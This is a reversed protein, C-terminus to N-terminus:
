KGKKQRDEREKWDNRFEKQREKIDRKLDERLDEERDKLDEEERDFLERAFAQAQRFESEYYANIEAGYLVINM